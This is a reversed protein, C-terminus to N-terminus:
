KDAKATAFPIPVADEPPSFTFRGDAFEPEPTVKVTAHFTPHAEDTLDVISYGCPLGEETDEIWVQWDVDPQRYAFQDCVRDGFRARGLYRASTIADLDDDNSGWLFLDALPVEFDYKSAVDAIMDSLAGEFPVSTYYRINPAWLTATKGDYYFIRERDPSSRDVRLGHPPDAEIAVQEIVTTKEGTELVEEWALNAHVSFAPLARLKTGMDKLAQFGAARNRKAEGDDHAKLAAAAGNPAEVFDGESNVFRWGGVSLRDQVAQLLEGGVDLLAIGTLSYVVKPFELVEAM